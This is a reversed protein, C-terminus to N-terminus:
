SRAKRRSHKSRKQREYREAFATLGRFAVIAWIINLVMSIYAHLHYQYITLGLAGLTNDLEYWFSKNKWQGISTRYFGLLILAAGITGVIAYFYEPINM